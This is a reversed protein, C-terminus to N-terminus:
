EGKVQAVIREFAEVARKLSEKDQKYEATRFSLDGRFSTRIAERVLEVDDDRVPAPITAKRKACSECTCESELLVFDKQEESEYGCPAILRKPSLSVGDILHKAIKAIKPVANDLATEITSLASLGDLGKEVNQSGVGYALENLAERVIKLADQPTQTM